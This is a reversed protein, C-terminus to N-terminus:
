EAIVCGRWLSVVSFWCHHSLSCLRHFPSFSFLFAPCLEGVASGWGCCVCCCLVSSSRFCYSSFPCHSPSRCLALHWVWCSCPAVCLGGGGGNLLAVLYVVLPSALVRVPSVSMRRPTWCCLRGEGVMGGVVVVVGWWGRHGWGGGRRPPLLCLIGWWVFLASVHGGGVCWVGPLSCQTVHCCYEGASCHSSYPVLRVVAGPLVAAACVGGGNWVGLLISVM